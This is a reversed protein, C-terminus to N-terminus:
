RGDWGFNIQSARMIANITFIGRYVKCKHSGLAWTSAGTAPDMIRAPMRRFSPLYPNIRMVDIFGGMLRDIVLRTM